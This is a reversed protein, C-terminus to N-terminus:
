PVIINCLISPFASCFFIIIKLCSNGSILNDTRRSLMYVLSSIRELHCYHCITYSLHQTCFFSPTGKWRTLYFDTQQTPLGATSHHHYPFWVGPLIGWTPIEPLIQQDDRMTKPATYNVYSGSLQYRDGRGQGWNNSGLALSQALLGMEWSVATEGHKGPTPRPCTLGIAEKELPKLICELLCLKPGEPHFFIFVVRSHNTNTNGVLNM